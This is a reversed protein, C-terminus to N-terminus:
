RSSDGRAQQNVESALSELMSKIANKLAVMLPDDLGREPKDTGVEIADGVQVIAKLQAHIQTTDTLDEEFREVTELIREAPSDEAVYEAPYFWLQQALYLDALQRWRRDREEDTIDGEVMDPLIATRLNKVRTVVDGNQPKRMWEAELPM